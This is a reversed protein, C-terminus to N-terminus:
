FYYRMGLEIMTARLEFDIKINNNSTFISTGTDLVVDDIKLASQFLVQKLDVFLEWNQRLPLFGGVQLFVAIPDEFSFKANTLTAQSQNINTDRALM